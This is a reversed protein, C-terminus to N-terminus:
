SGGTSIPVPGLRSNPSSRCDQWPAGPSLSRSPTAPDLDVLQQGPAPATMSAAADHVLARVGNDSFYQRASRPTIRM